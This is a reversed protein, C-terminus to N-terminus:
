WGTKPNGLVGIQILALSVIDANPFGPLSTAIPDPPPKSHFWTIV